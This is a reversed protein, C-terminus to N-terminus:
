TAPPDVVPKARKARVAKLFDRRLKDVMPDIRHWGTVSVIELVLKDSWRDDELLPAWTKAREAWERAPINWPRDSQNQYHYDALAKHRRLFGLTGWLLGSGPYPILLLKRRSARRVVVAVDLDWVNRASQGIQTRYQDYVFRSARGYDFDTLDPVLALPGILLERKEPELKADLILADYLKLLVKKANKEARLRIERLVDWLDYGERLRYAEWIKTSM